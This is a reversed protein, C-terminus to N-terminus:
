IDRYHLEGHRRWHDIHWKERLFRRYAFRTVPMGPGHLISMKCGDSVKLMATQPLTGLDLDHPDDYAAYLTPPKIPPDMYDCYRHIEVKDAVLSLLPNPHTLYLSRMKECYTTPSAFDPVRGLVKALPYAVAEIDNRFTNDYVFAQRQTRPVFRARHEAEKRRQEVSEILDRCAASMIPATM